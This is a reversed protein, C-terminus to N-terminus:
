LIKRSANNTKKNYYFAIAFILMLIYPISMLYLIGDNLGAGKVGGTEINSEVAAKCMACQASTYNSAVALLLILIINKLRM